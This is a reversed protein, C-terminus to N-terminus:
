CSGAAGKGEGPAFWTEALAERERRQRTEDWGLETAMVAGVVSLDEDAPDGGTGLDLRRLVADALTLAMEDRVAERTRGELDGPRFFCRM